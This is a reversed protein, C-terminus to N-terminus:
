SFEEIYNNEIRKYRLLNGVENGDIIHKTDRRLTLYINKIIVTALITTTLSPDYFLYAEIQKFPKEINTETDIIKIKLGNIIENYQSVKPIEQYLKLFHKLTPSEDGDVQVTYQNSVDKLLVAPYNLLYDMNNFSNFHIDGDDKLINVIDKVLLNSLPIIKDKYYLTNYKIIFKLNTNIKLCPVESSKFYKDSDKRSYEYLNYKASPIDKIDGVRDIDKFLGDKKIFM